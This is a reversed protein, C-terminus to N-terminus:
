GCVEDMRRHVLMLQRISQQTRTFDPISTIHRRQRALTFKMFDDLTFKMFVALHLNVFIMETVTVCQKLTYILTAGLHGCKKVLLKVGSRTM